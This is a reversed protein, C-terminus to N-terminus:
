SPRRRDKGTMPVVTCMEALRSATREGAQAALAPPPLNSTVILPLCQVYRHDVIAHLCKQTWESAKEAGLDDIMLLPATQCARMRPRADDGPRLGDLLDSAQAAVVNGAPETSTTICWSAVASWAAHTKGTGIQGALYLGQAADGRAIWDYVPQPLVIEERFRPPIFEATLAQLRERECAPCRGELRNGGADNVIAWGEGDCTASTAGAYFKLLNGHRQDSAM